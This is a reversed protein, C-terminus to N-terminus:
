RSLASGRLRGVENQCGAKRLAKGVTDWSCSSETMGPGSGRAAKEPHPLRDHHEAARKCFESVKQSYGPRGLAGRVKVPQVV